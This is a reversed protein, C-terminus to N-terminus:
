AAGRHSSAAAPVSNAADICALGFALLQVPTGWFKVPLHDANVLTWTHDDNPVDDAHSYNIRPDDGLAISVSPYVVTAKKADNPM